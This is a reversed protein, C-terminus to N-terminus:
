PAADSTLLGLIPAPQAAVPLWCEFSSGGHARQRLALTGGHAQAIARCLALGVGAGRRASQGVGPPAMAPPASGDPPIPVDAPGADADCSQAAAPGRQFADFIRERWAPAVGPGRDRVALLVGDRSRFLM